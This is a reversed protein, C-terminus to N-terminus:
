RASGSEARPEPSVERRAELEDAQTQLRQGEGGGFAEGPERLRQGRLEHKEKVKDLRELNKKLSADEAAPDILSAVEKAPNTSSADGKVPNKLNTNERAPSKSAADEKVPKKPRAKKKKKVVPGAADPAAKSAGSGGVNQALGLLPTMLLALLLVGLKRNRRRRAELETKMRPGNKRGKPM